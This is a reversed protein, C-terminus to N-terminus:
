AREIATRIGLGIMCLGTTREMGRVIGPRRLWKLLAAAACALASFLAAATLADISAFLLTSRLVPM